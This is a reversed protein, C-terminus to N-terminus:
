HSRKPFSGTAVIIMRSQLPTYAGKTSRRHVNTVGFLGQCNLLNFLWFGRRHGFM